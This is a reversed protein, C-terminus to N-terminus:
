AYHTSTVPEGKYLKAYGYSIAFGHEAGHYLQVKKRIPEAFFDIVGPVNDRSLYKTELSSVSTMPLLTVFAGSRKVIVYFDVNTQDFGWTSVVIAGPEFKHSVKPVIKGYPSLSIKLQKLRDIYMANEAQLGLIVAEKYGAFPGFGQLGQNLLRGTRQRTQIEDLITGAEGIIEIDFAALIARETKQM